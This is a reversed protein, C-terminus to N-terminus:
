RACQRGILCKEILTRVTWAVFFSAVVEELALARPPRRRAHGLGTDDNACRAWGACGSPSDLRLWRGSSSRARLLTVLWRLPAGFVPSGPTQPQPKLRNGCNAGNPIRGTSAKAVRKKARGEQFVALTLFTSRLRLQWARCIVRCSFFEGPVRSAYFTRPNLIPKDNSAGMDAAVCSQLRGYRLSGLKRKLVSAMRAVVAYQTGRWELM